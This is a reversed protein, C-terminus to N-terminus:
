VRKGYLDSVLIYSSVARTKRMTVAREYDSGNSVMTPLSNDGTYIVRKM